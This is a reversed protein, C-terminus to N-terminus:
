AVQPSQEVALNVLVMQKQHLVGFLAGADAAGITVSGSAVGHGDGDEQTGQEGGHGQTHRDRKGQQQTAGRQHPVHVHEVGLDQRLVHDLAGVAKRQQGHRKKHERARDHIGTAERDADDVEGHRQQPM